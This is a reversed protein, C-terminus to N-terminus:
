YMPGRLYKAMSYVGIRYILIYFAIQLSYHNGQESLYVKFLQPQDKHSSLYIDIWSTVALKSGLIQTVREINQSNVSHLVDNQSFGESYM